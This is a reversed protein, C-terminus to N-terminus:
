LIIQDARMGFGPRSHKEAKRRTARLLLWSVFNGSPEIALWYRAFARHARPGLAHTRHELVLHQGEDRDHEVRISMALKEYDPDAFEEFQKADILRVPVQDLVQHFKGIAGLVIERDPEEALIANGNAILQTMFPENEHGDAPAKRGILRGPLYRLTGLAQALPMDRVTVENLAAFLEVATAHVPISVRGVFEYDPMVRDLLTETPLEAM